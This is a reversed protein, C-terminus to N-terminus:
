SAIVFASVLGVKLGEEAPLVPARWESLGAVRLATRQEVLLAVLGL